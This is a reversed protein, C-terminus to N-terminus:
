WLRATVLRIGLTGWYRRDSRDSGQLIAGVTGDFQIEDSLIYRFGVQTAPRRAAPDYPDGYWVEGVAHLAGAIRGQGGVGCTVTTGSRPLAPAAVVGLNGHLLLGEEWFSQTVAGYAFGTWDEQALHGRGSPALTGAAIAVGPIANDIAPWLLAKAQLIPGGVSYGREYGGYGVGHVFGATVELWETPGVAVLATHEAISDDVLVWSELQALAEGVVRADDTVFPRIAVAPAASLLFALVSLAAWPLPSRMM